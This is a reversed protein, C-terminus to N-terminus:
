SYLLDGCAPWQEDGSQQLLIQARHTQEAASNEHPYGSGGVAQWTPLSFQYLGYYGNGTNTSPNGGSECNALAAWNLGDNTPPTSGAVPAQREPPHNSPESSPPEPPPPPKPVEVRDPRPIKMVDPETREARDARQAYTIRAQPPQTTTVVTATTPTPEDTFASVCTALTLAAVVPYLYRM